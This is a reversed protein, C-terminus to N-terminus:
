LQVIQDFLGHVDKDHTIIIISKKYSKFKTLITLIQNKLEPDLANTPEDLILIKSPNILGSIINVVQRQGGSLNEGLSGAPTEEIDVNKFLERIKSYKLIEKLNENCTDLHNCGYLINEIVKKDFLKSTQNVYTVNRRIYNPNVTTIDTGDIKITGSNCDYLRLLLKVFSSKGKGSLGVIGIIKNNVDLNISFDKLIYRDTNQYKFSVRDFRINDFSLENEDYTKYLMDYVEGKDGMMAKFKDSIVELRGKFDVYEHLDATTSSMRERYLLLITFFTVFMVSDIKKGRFLNILIGICAFVILNIMLVLIMTHRTIFNMYVKSANLCMDNLNSYSETESEVQGRYIVKDINNLIDILYKDNKSIIKEHEVKSKEFQSWFFLIYSIICINGFLFIMGLLPSKYLFYITIVLLFAITPIFASIINSFLMHLQMAIRTIPTYFETYNVNSMNENNLKLVLQFLENRTWQILKQLLNTQIFKYIYIIFIFLLSVGIFYQYNKMICSLDNQNVCEIIKATVYSIGNTQFLILTLSLGILITVNIYEEKLFKELLYGLINM